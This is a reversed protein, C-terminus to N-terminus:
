ASRSAAALAARAEDALTEVIEAAPLERALEHTQGAWLNVADRDGSERAAARIPATAYHIEPYASPADPHEEIFRNVIGRARRGTFARTIATPAPKRLEARHLESTGAEPALMFGTGIQVASAGCALAAAVGAGTAIGGAAVLPLEVRAALLQLLALLGYSDAGAADDFSGQHAGAETGQAILADAGTAAAKQAESPDTVTVWVESGTAQLRKVASAGPCGFTISVVAVGERELLAIKEPWEDDSYRPAGPEVGYRGATQGLLEVYDRISAPDTPADPAFLNVGFPADGLARTADIEQQLAAATKYGAALFGLGGAGSVAAALEPTSPGGGMPAGVIPHRIRDLIL